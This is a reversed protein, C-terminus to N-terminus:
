VAFSFPAKKQRCQLHNAEAVVQLDIRPMVGVFVFMMVFVILVVIVSASLLFLPNWRASRAGLIKWFINV